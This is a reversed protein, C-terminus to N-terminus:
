NLPLFRSSLTSVAYQEYVRNGIQQLVAAYNFPPLFQLAIGASPVPPKLEYIAPAGLISFAMLLGFM